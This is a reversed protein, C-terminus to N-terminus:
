ESPCVSSAAFLMCQCLFLSLRDSGVVQDHQNYMSWFAGEDLIPLVPHVHLFYHRVFEDMIPRAPVRFCGQEELMNVDRSRMHSIIDPELFPYYSFVVHSKASLM